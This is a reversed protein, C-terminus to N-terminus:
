RLDFYYTLGGSLQWSHLRGQPRFGAELQGVVIQAQSPIGYDPAGVIHNRLDVRFGWNGWQRVKVGGGYTWGLKWRQKLEIGQDLAQSTTRGMLHFYSAGVGLSGFPRIGQQWDTPYFLVSYSVKHVRQDLDLRSLDPRLGTFGGPQNAFVYELEAAVHEWRNETIRAGVAYGPEFDLGVTFLDGTDTATLYEGSTLTGGGYFISFEWRPPDQPPFPIQGWASSTFFLLAFGVSAVFRRM